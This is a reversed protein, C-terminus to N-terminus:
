SGVDLEGCQKAPPAPIIVRFSDKEEIEWLEKGTAAEWASLVRGQAQRALGILTRADLSFAMAEARYKPLSWLPKGTKADWVTLDAPSIIDKDGLKTQEICVNALWRGNPAVVPPHNLDYDGKLEFRTIRTDKRVDWIQVLRNEQSVSTLIRGQNGFKVIGVGSGQHNGLTKLIKGSGADWLIVEAGSTTTKNGITLEVHGTGGAILKGNPTIDFAFFGGHNAPAKLLTSVYPPVERARAPGVTWLIAVALSVHLAALSLKCRMM